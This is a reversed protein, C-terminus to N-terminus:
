VHICLDILLNRPLIKLYLFHNELLPIVGSIYFIFKSSTVAFGVYIEIPYRTYVSHGTLCPLTKTTCKLVRSKWNVSSYLICVCADSKELYWFFVAM